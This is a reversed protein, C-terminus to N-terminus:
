HAAVAASPPTITAYTAPHTVSYGALLLVLMLAALGQRAVRALNVQVSSQPAITAAPM